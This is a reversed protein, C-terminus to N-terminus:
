LRPIRVTEDLKEDEPLVLEDLAARLAARTQNTTEDEPNEFSLHAPRAPALPRM